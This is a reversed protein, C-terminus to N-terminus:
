DFLEGLYGDITRQDLDYFDQGDEHLREALARGVFRWHWSEYRYYTNGKPYSLIFGYKWANHTLWEYEKSKDFGVFTGGVTPTTFDVATGLQHESFGQDASFANAGTGYKVSYGSKLTTQTDFSRYSSAVLISLGDEKADELLRKLHRGADAHIEYTRGSQFGFARDITALGSPVHNENLFYVKSYKALLEPDTKALKELAGVTGSIKSIQTTFADNTQQAIRLEGALAINEETKAAVTQEAEQAAEEAASRTQELEARTAALERSQQYLGYAGVGACLLILLITGSILLLRTM